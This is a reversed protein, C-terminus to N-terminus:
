IGFYLLAYGILIGFVFNIAKITVSDKLSYSIMPLMGHGDQVISNAVLVSFPILGKSFMVVFILNPGSEPILGVLAGIAIMIAPNGSVVAELNMHSLGISILLLSGFTWLFINPIHKRIIHKLVHSRIYHSPSILFIAISILSLVVATIREIKEGFIFLLAGILLTVFILILKTSLMEKINGFGFRLNKGEKHYLKIKCKECPHYNTKKIIEDTVWSAAIGIVFLTIFLIIAKKPFMSLMVFSEDGSTAIMGGVLAGFTILGHIYLSVNTFAGLCGPTSGLFSVTVYQWFRNKKILKEIKDKSWVNIYDIILMMSFVFFTVTVSQKLIEVLAM